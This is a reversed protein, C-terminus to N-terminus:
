KVSLCALPKRSSAAGASASSPASTSSSAIARITFRARRENLYTMTSVNGRSSLTRIVIRSRISTANTTTWPVAGATAPM